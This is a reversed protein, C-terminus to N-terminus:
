ARLIDLFWDTEPLPLSMDWAFAQAVGQVASWFTLSLAFPNGKKITGSKQGLMILPVCEEIAVAKKLLEKVKDSVPESYYAQTMLVFLKAALPHATLSEMIMVVATQFFLMPDEHEMQMVSQPGSVGIEILTEYLAEKSEFYHFLLGTSMGVAKAIDAIKTAAYGKRIFLDLAASLIDTRRQEKQDERIGM